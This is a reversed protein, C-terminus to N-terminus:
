QSLGYARDVAAVFALQQAEKLQRDDRAWLRSAVSQLPSAVWQAIGAGIMAGPVAGVGLVWVGIAAGITAGGATSALRIVPGTAERYFQRQSILGVSYEYYARIARLSDVGLALPFIWDGAVDAIVTLQGQGLLGLHAAPPLWSTVSQGFQGLAIGTQLYPLLTGQLAPDHFMAWSIQAQQYAEWGLMGAGALGLVAVGQNAHYRLIDRLQASDAEEFIARLQPDRRVLRAEWERAEEAAETTSWEGELQPTDPRGLMHRTRVVGTRLRNKQAAKIVRAAALREDDTARASKLVRAASRIANRNTGQPTFYTRKIPSTGGKSELVRVHGSYPDWYVADPGQAIGRERWGVLKTWGREIAFRARGQEGIREALLTRDYPSTVLWDSRYNRQIFPHPPITSVPRPFLERGLGRSTLSALLGAQELSTRPPSTDEPGAALVPQSIGLFLLLCLALVVAFTLRTRNM